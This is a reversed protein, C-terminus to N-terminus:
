SFGDFEVISGDPFSKTRSEFGCGYARYVRISVVVSVSVVVSTRLQDNQMTKAHCWIVGNAVNAVTRAHITRDNSVGDNQTSKAHNECSM